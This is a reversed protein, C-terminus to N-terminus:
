RGPSRHPRRTVPCTAKLAQVIAGAPRSEELRQLVGWVDPGRGHQLEWTAHQWHERTSGRVPFDTTPAKLRQWMTQPSTVTAAFEELATWWLHTEVEKGLEAALQITELPALLHHFSWRAKAPMWGLLRRANWLPLRELMPLDAVTLAQAALREVVKLDTDSLGQTNLLRKAVAPSPSVHPLRVRVAALLHGRAQGPDDQHRLYADATQESYIAPLQVLLDDRQPHELLNGGGEQALGRLLLDPMDWGSLVLNFVDERRDAPDPVTLTPLAKTWINLWSGDSLPAERLITPDMALSRAAANIVDEESQYVAWRLFEGPALEAQAGDLAAVRVDKPLNMLADLERTRASLVGYLRPWGRALVEQRPLSAPADAPITVALVHDWESGLTPLTLLRLKENSWWSWLVRAGEKQPKQRSMGTRLSESLWPQVGLTGTAEAIHRAEEPRVRFAQDFWAAVPATLPTAFEAPVEGVLRVVAADQSPLATAVRGALNTALTSRAEPRLPAHALVTLAYAAERVGQGADRLAASLVNLRRLDRISGTVQEANLGASDGLTTIVSPAAAAPFPIRVVGGTWAPAIWARGPAPVMLLDPDSVIDHPTEFARFHLQARAEPWLAAWAETVAADWGDEGIVAVPRGAAKVFAAIVARGADGVQPSLDALDVWLHGDEPLPRSAASLASGLDALATLEELPFLLAQTVISGHRKATIDPRTSTVVYFEGLPCGSPYPTWNARGDGYRPSRDTFDALADRVEIPLSLPSVSGRLFAHGENPHSHYILWRVELRM